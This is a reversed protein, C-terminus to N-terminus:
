VYVRVGPMRCLFRVGPIIIRAYLVQLLKSYPIIKKCLGCFMPYPMINNCFWCLNPYTIIKKRLGSFNRNSTHIEYLVQRTRSIGHYIGWTRKQVYGISYLRASVDSWPVTCTNMSTTLVLRVQMSTTLVLRVQMSAELVQMFVNKLVEKWPLQRLKWPLTSAGVANM